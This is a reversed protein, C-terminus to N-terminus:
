SALLSQAAAAEVRCQEPTGFLQRTAAIRKLRLHLGLEHTFGIAGHLQTALTAIERAMDATHAKAHCAVLHADPLDIDVAHAAYWTLARCPELMTAMEACAHRVSQFNALAQGFQRRVQVYSVAADLMAQGAGVMEAALLVRARAVLQRRVDADATLGVVVEAACGDLTVDALPNTRDLSPVARVRVGEGMLDTLTVAGDGHFVLLHTAHAAESLHCITGDLRTAARVVAMECGAEPLAVAMRVAGGAIKPLWSDAVAADARALLYPALHWPVLSPVPAVATGLAEALVVSDLCGGGLGGQVEPIALMPAGIACLDGWLAADFGVGDASRLVAATDARDALLQRLVVGFQRQDPSLGFEM